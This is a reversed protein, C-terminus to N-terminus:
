RKRKGFRAERDMYAKSFWITYKSQGGRLYKSADGPILEGHITKPANIIKQIADGNEPEDEPHFWLDVHPGVLGRMTKDFVIKFPRLPLVREIVTQYTLRKGHNALYLDSWKERPLPPPNLQGFGALIILNLAPTNPHGETRLKEAAVAALLKDLKRQAVDRIFQETNPHDIIDRLKQAMDRDDAHELITMFERMMYKYTPEVIFVRM